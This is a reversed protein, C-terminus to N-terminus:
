KECVSLSLSFSLSFFFSLFLFHKKTIFFLILFFVKVNSGVKLASEMTFYLPNNLIKDRIEKIINHFTFDKPFTLGSNYLKEFNADNHFFMLMSALIVSMEVTFYKPLKNIKSRLM